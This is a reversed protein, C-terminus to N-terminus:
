RAATPQGWLYDIVVDVDSAARGLLRAATGADGDLPV